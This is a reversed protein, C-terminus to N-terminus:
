KKNQSQVPATKAQGKQPGPQPQIVPPQQQQQQNQEPTPPDISVLEVEFILVDNPEIKGGRRPNEGYGLAPPVYLKWKSGVPMMQLAEDWAPIVKGVGIQFRAPQKREVSSDFVTGDILTGHYNVTVNDSAKPVPGSGQTVVEYQLGSATTIMGAKKKNEALFADSKTKNRELL